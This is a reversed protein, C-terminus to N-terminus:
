ARRFTSYGIFGILVIMSIIAGIKVLDAGAAIDVARASYIGYTAWLIVLPYWINEENLLFYLALSLAVLITVITIMASLPSDFTFGNQTLYIAANAITAVSIWGLYISFTVYETVYSYTLGSTKSQRYTYILLALLILMLIMSYGLAGYHWALLWSANTVCILLFGINMKTNFYENSSFAKILQYIVFAINFLYIISWIAFTFGAPTFLNPYIGSVEGTSVGNLEGIGGLYNLYLMGIFLLINLIALIKNM